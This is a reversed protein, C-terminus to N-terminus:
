TVVVAQRRKEEIAELLDNYSAVFKGVGEDQLEQMAKKLDIGAKEAMDFFEIAESAGEDITNRATGHDRFAPVTAPAMTVVTNVGILADVYYTDPYNPDKTSTSATLVRQPRAGKRALIAFRSNQFHQKYHLNM